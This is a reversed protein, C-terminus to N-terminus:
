GKARALGTLDYFQAAYGNLIAAGEPWLATRVTALLRGSLDEVMLHRCLPDFRDTDLGARGFFCRHRLRQCAALDAAGDAHRVM